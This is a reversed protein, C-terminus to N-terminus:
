KNQKNLYNHTLPIMVIAFCMCAACGKLVSVDDNRMGIQTAIGKSMAIRIATRTKRGGGMAIVGNVVLQRFGTRDVHRVIRHQGSSNGSSFAFRGCVLSLPAVGGMSRYM